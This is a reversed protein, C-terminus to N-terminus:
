PKTKTKEPITYFVLHAKMKRKTENRKWLCKWVDVDVRLVVDVVLMDSVDGDELCEMEKKTFGVDDSDGGLVAQSDPFSGSIALWPCSTLTVSFFSGFAKM